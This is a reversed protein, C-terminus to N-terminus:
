TLLAVALVTGLDKVQFSVVNLGDRGCKIVVDYCLRSVELVFLMFDLEERHAKNVTCFVDTIASWLAHIRHVCEKVMRIVFLM